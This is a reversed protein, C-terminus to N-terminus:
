SKFYSLQYEMVEVLETWPSPGSLGVLAWQVECALINPELHTFVDDNNLPVSLSNFNLLYNELKMTMNSEVRSDQYWFDFNKSFSTYAFLIVYHSM